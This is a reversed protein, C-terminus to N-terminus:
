LISSAVSTVHEVLARVLPATRAYVRKQEIQLLLASSDFCEIRDVEPHTAFARRRRYLQVIISPKLQTDYLFVAGDCSLAVIGRGDGILQDRTIDILGLSEEYLERLATNVIDGDTPEYRGGFDTLEGYVADVGLLFTGGDVSRLVVGARFRQVRTWDVQASRLM